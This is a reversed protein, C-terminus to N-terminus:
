DNKKSRIQELERWRKVEAEALLARAKWFVLLQKQTPEGPPLYYPLDAEAARKRRAAEDHNTFVANRQGRTHLLNTTQTSLFRHAPPPLGFCWGFSQRGLAKGTQTETGRLQARLPIGNVRKGIFPYFPNCVRKVFSNLRTSVPELDPSSISM